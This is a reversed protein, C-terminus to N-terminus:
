LVAFRNQALEMFLKLIPTTVFPEQYWLELARVLLRTYTPFRDFVIVYM